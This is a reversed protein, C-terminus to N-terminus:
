LLVIYKSNSEKTFMYNNVINSYKNVVENDIKSLSSVYFRILWESHDIRGKSILSFHIYENGNIFYNMM